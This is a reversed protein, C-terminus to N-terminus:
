VGNDLEFSNVPPLSFNRPTGPAPMQQDQASVIFSYSFILIFSIKILNKM